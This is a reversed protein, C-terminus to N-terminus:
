PTGAPADAGSEGPGSPTSAPPTAPAASPAAGLLHAIGDAVADARLRARAAERWGALARAADAPLATAEVAELARLAGALDGAAAARRAAEVVDGPVGRRSDDEGVRRITVLGRLRAMAREWLGGGESGPATGAGSPSPPSLDLAALRARLTALRPVGSAAFAGLAELERALVAGEAGAKELHAAADARLAAFPQGHGLALALGLLVVDREALSAAGARARASDLREGLVTMREEVAGLRREADGVREARAGIEALREEIAALRAPDAGPGAQKLAALDGAIAALRQDLANLRVDLAALREGMREEASPGAPAPAGWVAAIRERAAPWALIVVAAVALVVIIAVVPIFAKSRAKAPAPSEDTRETSETEAETSAEDAPAKAKDAEGGNETSTM